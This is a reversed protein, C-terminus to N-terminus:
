NFIKQSTGDKNGVRERDRERSPSPVNDNKSGITQLFFIL